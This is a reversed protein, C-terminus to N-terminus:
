IRGMRLKPRSKGTAPKTTRTVMKVCTGNPPHSGFIVSHVGPRITPVTQLNPIIAYHPRNWNNARNLGWGVWSVPRCRNTAIPRGPLRIDDVTQRRPIPPGHAPLQLPPGRLALATARLRLFYVAGVASLRMFERM